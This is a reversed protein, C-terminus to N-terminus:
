RDIRPDTARDGNRSQFIEVAQQVKEVLPGGASGFTSYSLFAVVPENGLRKVNACTQEAIRALREPDPDPNVACDALYITPQGAKEMIFFSSADKGPSGIQRIATLFVDKSPFTAGVVVGDVEGSKLLGAAEELGLQEARIKLGPSVEASKAAYEAIAPDDPEPLLITPVFDSM